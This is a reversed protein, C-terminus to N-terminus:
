RPARPNGVSRAKVTDQRGQGYGRRGPGNPRSKHAAAVSQSELAASFQKPCVPVGSERVIRRYAAVVAPASAVHDRVARRLNKLSVRRGNTLTYM